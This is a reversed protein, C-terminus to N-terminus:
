DRDIMSTASLGLAVQRERRTRAFGAAVNDSHTAYRLNERRNNLSDGDVHHGDIGRGMNRLIISHLMVHNSAGFGHCFYVNRGSQHTHWSVKTAWQEEEDVLAVMGHKTTLSICRGSRPALGAEVAANLVDVYAEVASRNM